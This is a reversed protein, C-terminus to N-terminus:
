RYHTRFPRSQRRTSARTCTRCLFQAKKSSRACSPVSQAVIAGKPLRSDFVYSMMAHTYSWESNTILLLKKDAHKLDLLTLPLQEDIEVFKEPHGAIEGKLRGEMHTADLTDRITRHLDIYSVIGPLPHEDLRDVLQM